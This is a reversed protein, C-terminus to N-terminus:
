LQEWRETLDYLAEKLVDALEDKESTTLFGLDIATNNHKITISYHKDIKRINIEM